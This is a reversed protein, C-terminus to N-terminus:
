FIMKSALFLLNHIEEDIKEKHDALFEKVTTTLKQKSSPSISASPVFSLLIHSILFCYEEADSIHKGKKPTLKLHFDILKEASLPKGFYKEEIEHNM